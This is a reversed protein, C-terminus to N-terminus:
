KLEKAMWEQARRTVQYVAGHIKIHCQRCLWDVSLRKNYDRHHAEPACKSQCLSCIKPKIIEGCRIKRHVHEKVRDATARDVMRIRESYTRYNYNSYTTKCSNSCFRRMGNGYSTKYAYFELGCEECVFKLKGGKWNPNNKGHENRNRTIGFITIM